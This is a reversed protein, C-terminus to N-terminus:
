LSCAIWSCCAIWESSRTTVAKNYQSTHHIIYINFHEILIIIYAEHASITIIIHYINYLNTRKCFYVCPVNGIFAHATIYRRLIPDYTFHISQNCRWSTPNSSIPHCSLRPWCPQTALHHLFTINSQQPWHTSDNTDLHVMIHPWCPQTVLHCLEM